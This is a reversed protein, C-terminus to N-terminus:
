VAAVTTAVGVRAAKATEIVNLIESKPWRSLAGIKIPAPIKGDAIHRYLTVRGIQLFAAVENATLLSDTTADM